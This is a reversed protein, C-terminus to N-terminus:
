FRLRVLRPGCWRFAMLLCHSSRRCSSDTSDMKPLWRL